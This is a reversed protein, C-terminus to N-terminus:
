HARGGDYRLDIGPYLQEYIIGAPTSPNTRWRSAENGIVYHIRGPLQEGHDLRVANASDFRLRIVAFSPNGAASLVPDPATQSESEAAPLSPVIENERFFFM